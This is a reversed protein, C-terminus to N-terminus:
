SFIETIRDAMFNGFQHHMEATWHIPDRESSSAGENADIFHVAEFDCMRAIHQPLNESIEFSGRWEAYRPWDADNVLMGLRPPCIIAISPTTQAHWGGAGAGSDKVIHVLQSLASAIDEAQRNFRTKLDNTGLMILVLDLPQHSKVSAPLSAIGSFEAGMVPDPLNTTRGPLCDEIIEAAFHNAALANATTKPWRRAYRNGSEDDLYGWSNSDGFILIRKM